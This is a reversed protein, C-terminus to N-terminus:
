KLMKVVWDYMAEMENTPARDFLHDAGEVWGYEVEMGAAKM